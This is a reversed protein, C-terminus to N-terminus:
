GSARLSRFIVDVPIADDPFAACSVRMGARAISATAYEGGRPERHITLVKEVVDALWVEPVGAGAYLPLKIRRDYAHSTDGAEVLFHIDTAGPPRGDYGTEDYRLVAIDPEPEDLNGLVVSAQIQVIAREWFLNTLYTGLRNVASRHPPNVPPMAILEGGVLELREDPAFIGREAMLHYDHVTIFRRRYDIAM